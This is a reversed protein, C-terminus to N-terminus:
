SYFDVNYAFSTKLTKSDLDYEVSLLTGGFKECHQKILNMISENLKDRQNKVTLTSETNNM